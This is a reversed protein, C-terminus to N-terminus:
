HNDQLLGMTRATRQSAEAGELIAGTTLRRVTARQIAQWPPASCRGAIALGFRKNAPSPRRSGM